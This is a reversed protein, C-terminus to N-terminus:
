YDKANLMKMYEADSPVQPPERGRAQGVPQHHSELHARMSHSWVFVPQGECQGCLMPHQTCPNTDSGAKLHHLSKFDCVASMMPCTTMVKAGLCEGHKDRRKAADRWVTCLPASDNGCHGCLDKLVLKKAGEDAEGRMQKAAHLGIHGRM